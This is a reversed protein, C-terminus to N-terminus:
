RSTKESLWLPSPREPSRGLQSDGQLHAKPAPGHRAPLKNWGEWGEGKWSGPGRGGRGAECPSQQDHQRRADKPGFQPQPCGPRKLGCAERPTPLKDRLQTARTKTKLLSESESCKFKCFLQMWGKVKATGLLLMHEIKMAKKMKMKFCTHWWWLRFVKSAKNGTNTVIEWTVM